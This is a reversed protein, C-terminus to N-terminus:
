RGELASRLREVKQKLGKNTLVLDHELTVYKSVKSHLTKNEGEADELQQKLAGVKAKIEGYYEVELVACLSDLIKKM